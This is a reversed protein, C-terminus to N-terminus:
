TTEKFKIKISQLFYKYDRDFLKTDCYKDPCKIGEIFNSNIKEKIFEYYCDDCFFHRCELFNNKMEEDTLEENCIICYKVRKKNGSNYRNSDNNSNNNSNNSSFSQGIYQFHSIIFNKFKNLSNNRSSSSNLSEHKESKNDEEFKIIRKETQIEENINNKIDLSVHPPTENIGSFLDKNKNTIKASINSKDKKTEKNFDSRFKNINLVDPNNFKVENFEISEKSYRSSSYIESM